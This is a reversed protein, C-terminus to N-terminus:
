RCVEELYKQDLFLWIHGDASIVRVRDDQCAIVGSGFFKKLVPHRDALLKIDDQLIV